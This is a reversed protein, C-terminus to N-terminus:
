EGTFDPKRKDVFASVGERFDRSMACSVFSETEASLQDSM